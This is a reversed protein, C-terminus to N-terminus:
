SFELTELLSLASVGYFTYEVDTEQDLAFGHFGGEASQMSYAYRRTASEQVLSGAGLDILTLNGTFTSLLDAFPIRTNATLGGESTHLDAIFESTEEAIAPDLRDLVKLTGVAAATPNVGARKAARIERYGGEPQLQSQIFDVIPDIDSPMRDILQLCLLNLFTQYTSGAKGEPSKAYGGDSTRLTEILNAFNNRWDDEDPLVVVGQALECIAAAFVLSIADIISDRGDIRARLFEGARTAIDKDLRDLIWLSRLGFATYYPDSGGERGAFGGDDRQQAVIWDGHLQRTESPLRSAGLALRLTM